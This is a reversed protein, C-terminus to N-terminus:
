GPYVPALSPQTINICLENSAVCIHTRNSADTVMDGCALAFDCIRCTCSNCHGCNHRAVKSYTKNSGPLLTIGPSSQIVGLISDNITINEIARSGTNNVTITYNIPEGANADSTNANKHVEMITGECSSYLLEQFSGILRAQRRILDEYSALFKYWTQKETSDLSRQSYVWKNFESLLYQEKHLRDEFRTLFEKKESNNLKCYGRILLVDNSSIIGAQRRLLDEFSSTFKIKQVGELDNWNCWVLEQFDHLGRQQRMSLDDFSSLFKTSASADLTSNKLLSEFSSILDTQGRLLSELSDLRFAAQSLARAIASDNSFVCGTECTGRITVNNIHTLGCTENSSANVVVSWKGVGVPVMQGTWKITTWNPVPQNQIVTGNISSVDFFGDGLTDVVSVNKATENGNNDMYITWSVPGLFQVSPEKRVVLDGKKPNVTQVNPTTSLLNGCSDRYYFGLTSTSLTASKCCGNCNIVKFRITIVEGTYVRDINTAKWILTRNLTTFDNPEYITITANHTVNNSTIRASNKKYVFGVPLVETINKVFASAGSNGIALTFDGGCTDLENLQGIDPSASVSPRTILNATTSATSPCCGWYIRATDTTQDTCSKVTANLLIIRTQGVLIDSLNWVLPDALTGKGSENEPYASQWVTNTPLIDQLTVNKAVYDGGQNKLTIIWRVIDGTNAYSPSPAKTITVTPGFKAVPIQSELDPGFRGCPEIYNVLVRSDGGSFSCSGKVSANFKIAIRTGPGVGQTQNFRWILIAPNSYDTSTPLAGSVVPTDNLKLGAPLLERITLNYVYAAASNRVEIKFPDNAGCDDVKGADHKAVLLEASVLEVQSSKSVNQCVKGGCGITAYVYNKRNQCGCLTANVEIMVQQKPAMSGIKWTVKDPGCPKNDIVGTKLPEWLLPCTLCSQIRSGTYNLGSEMSDVVTVNYATGSGTNTVYIKWSANRDLAFIVEPTKEIVINALTLLSPSATAARTVFGGCNDTYNMAAFANKEAPCRLEVLFTINGGRSVNQGLEWTLNHGTHNPEFSKVPGSQNVIGSINAPGIYRYNADNYLVDMFHAVWKPDANPSNKAINLTLNFIKCSSILSPVGIININYDAQKVTVRTEEQFCNVRACSSSYGKVCLRSWDLFTGFNPQRLTYNIKLIDGKRLPGCGNELFSLNKSVNLAIQSVNICGNLNFSANGAISGDAFTQGNYGEETFNIDAWRMSTSNNIVYTNTYNILHCNEQVLPYATKNSYSLVSTNFCKVIIPLNTSAALPCGCCDNSANVSFENNYIGGCNCSGLNKTKLWITKSWPMTSNLDQNNWIITQNTENLSGGAASVVDFNQPYHDLITNKPLTASCSGRQYNVTLTYNESEGLYLSGKGSNSSKAVSIRPITDADMSYSMQSLPPTWEDGCDDFYHVNVNFIGSAESANCQGRPMGFDFTISKKDGSLMKAGAYLTGLYFTHNNEFYEAGSVNTITYPANFESFIMHIGTANGFGLNNLSVNVFTKNCYPVVIPDPHFAYNLDPERPVFKISGKAYTKQCGNGGCGWSVNVLNDLNGCDIVRFSTNVIKTEGPEIRAYSWNMSGGPTDISLLQLGSNNTDSVKVNFAPGTGLNEVKVAWQVTDWKSAEIVNPEKTIKLVGSNILISFSNFTTAPGNSSRGNVVLRKGSPAGCGATLNFQIKLSQGNGLAWSSNTWNLYHGFVIAPEQLSHNGVPFAIHTSGPNYAFGGPMTVNLSINNAMNGSSNAYVQFTTNECIDAESPTLANLQLSAMVNPIALLLVLFLSIAKLGTIASPGPKVRAAVAKGINKYKKQSRFDCDYRGKGSMHQSPYKDIVETM